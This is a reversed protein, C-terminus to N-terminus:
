LSSKLNLLLLCILSKMEQVDDRGACLVSIIEAACLDDRCCLSSRQLSSSLSSSLSSRCLSSILHSRACGSLLSRCCLHSAAAFFHLM